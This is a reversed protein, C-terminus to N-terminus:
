LFKISVVSDHRDFFEFLRVFSKLVRPGFVFILSMGEAMGGGGGVRGQSCGGVCKYTMCSWSIPIHFSSGVYIGRSYFIAARCALDRSTSEATSKRSAPSYFGIVGEGDSRGVAPLLCGSLGSAGAARCGWRGAM